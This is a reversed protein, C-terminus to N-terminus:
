TSDLGHQEMSCYVTKESVNSWALVMAMAFVGGSM